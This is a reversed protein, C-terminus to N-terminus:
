EPAGLHCMNGFTFCVENRVDPEDHLFLEVTKALLGPYFICKEVQPRTGACINSLTWCAERRVARKSHDLLRLLLALVHNNLLENTQSESGTSINGVLRLAPIVLTNEKSYCLDILKTV